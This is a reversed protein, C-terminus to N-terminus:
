KKQEIKKFDSIPLIIKIYRSLLFTFVHVHTKTVEKINVFGGKALDFAFEGPSYENVTVQEGKFLYRDNDKLEM